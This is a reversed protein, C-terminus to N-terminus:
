YSGGRGGAARKKRSANAAANRQLTRLAGQVDASVSRCEQYVAVGHASLVQRDKQLNELREMVQNMQSLPMNPETHNAFFEALEKREPLGLAWTARHIFEKARPLTHHVRSKAKNWQVVDSSLAHLKEEATLPQKSVAELESRMGEMSIRLTDMSAELGLIAKWRAELDQWKATLIEPEISETGAVAQPPAKLRVHISLHAVDPPPQPLPNAFEPNSGEMGAHSAGGHHWSEVEEKAIAVARLLNETTLRQGMDPVQFSERPIRFTLAFPEGEPKFWVEAIREGRFTLAAWQTSPPQESFTM